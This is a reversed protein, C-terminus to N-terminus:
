LPMMNILINRLKTNNCYVTLVGNKSKNRYNGIKGSKTVTIKGALQSSKIKLEKIWYKRAEESDIDSFVQLSFKLRDENFGLIKILFEIFKKILGPDTNALKISNRNKKNGEGWYLGLGYGKLESLYMSNPIRVQFPDGKPNNKLYVAESISRKRIGYKKFWYNIGTESKNLIKAIESVSKNEKLYYKKLITKNIDM